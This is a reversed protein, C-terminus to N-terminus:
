IKKKKKKLSNLYNSPADNSFLLSTNFFSNNSSEESTNSALSTNANQNEDKLSANILNDHMPSNNVVDIFTHKNSNSEPSITTKTLGLMSNKPSIPSTTNSKPPNSQLLDSNKNKNTGCKHCYWNQNKPPEKTIGICHRNLTNLFLYLFLFFYNKDLVNRKGIIGIM